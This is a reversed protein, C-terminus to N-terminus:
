PSNLIGATYLILFTNNYKSIYGSVVGVHLKYAGGRLRPIYIGSVRARIIIIGQVLGRAVYVTNRTM